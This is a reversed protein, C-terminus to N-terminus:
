KLRQMSNPNCYVTDINTQYLVCWNGPQLHVTSTNHAGQTCKPQKYLYIYSYEALNVHM